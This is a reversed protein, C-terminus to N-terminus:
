TDQKKPKHLSITSIRLREATGRLKHSRGHIRPAPLNVGWIGGLMGSVAYAVPLKPLCIGVCFCAAAYWLLWVGLGALVGTLIGKERRHRAARLGAALCGACVSVVALFRRGGAPMDVVALLLSCLFMMGCSVPVGALLCGATIKRM